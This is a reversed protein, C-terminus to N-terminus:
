SNSQRELLRGRERKKKKDQIFEDEEKIETIESSNM